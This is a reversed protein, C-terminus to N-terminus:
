RVVFRLPAVTAQAEPNYYDYVVSAPTQANIAYRPKFKFNFKTGGAQAWMYIVIRDPLIEYRSINWNAEIAKDLSERSVDAGPPTGIEALLMGYGRFGTREAAVTCTVDEMIASSAKDCKYDLKLSRSSNVDLNSAQADRWDIYHTAVVQSMLPMEGSATIEVKNAAAGLKDSLDITIPDIKDAPVSLNQIAEGNLSVRITQEEAPRQGALATLLADLVNITTQTSYWVGFRDKNKLLFLTGKTILEKRAINNEGKITTDRILLQLVLATTEIRGATGWGYFPTNTELRWYVSGSEDIAMKELQAAVAGATETDGADIAALGFLALAYPEDIEANRAKLYALAKNLAARDTDKSMALARAIYTTTLKTRKTDEATDYYYKKTWSGDPRQQRVLWETARKIVEDDVTIQSKADNLFRLAYATLSVDSTDKGGWYTFGGDAIQYGLLREYGARLYKKATQRLPSNGSIFKLIMLNPYTSSITQEGCGYPRKLLGGVSDSVHSILNPYIKLEAKQTRPMANEPFNVNLSATGASVTSVTRVVEDGNPRVTVPKEIADSDTQAIATVRQKGDKVPLIAKFGFITNASEGPGVDIKQKDPGLMSFWDAKAMSVSVPQRKETYNRVQTPLYIEDGETLFKPPDLDVFFPQFATIEKEAVGIKGKKTSAVTYMKWTTINDAMKFTMEAKGNKDTLLEPQWVLTEPFYQRLRPTSIQEKYPFAIRTETRGVSINVMTASTEIASDTGTVEVTASVGGANLVVKMEILNLSRVEVGTRVYSQFGPASIKVRYRGSPLNGILFNGADDTTTLFSVTEDNEYIATVTAAVIVAGMADTVSGDIAGRAGNFVVSNIEGKSSGDFGWLETVVSSFRALDFDDSERAPDAGKSRITFVRLKETVPKIVQKGNEYTTRDAYRSIDASTLYVPQRYGDRVLGLDLGSSSLLATFEAKDKPFPKKEANVERSLMENIQNESKYFYDTSVTWADFDDRNWQGREEIGNPGLSYIRIVYNRGSVEFVIKYQRGWRDRLSSLDIGYKSVATNLTWLDRIFEGTNTQYAKVAKEINEGIPRFYEFSVTAVAFDDDTGFVKDPGATRLGDIALTKDTTFTPRYNQGWPDKLGDFDIGYQQLCVKLSELDFPITHNKEFQAKLATEVPRMQLPFFDRYISQANEDNGGDHYVRPYYYNGALMVEAALEMEDSIPKSLDLNNLDNLSLTGFSKGYGLLDRFIGFYNDYGEDARARQEVASDFVAIGLASEAVRGSGDLVSFRVKVDDNPRYSPSSFKANLKLNQQDPFIIGRSARMRGDWGTDQDTYGAITLEGKFEPRFPISVDVKGNKLKGIRTDIITWDKVVDVYVFGTQQTSLINVDVMEGPKYISRSTSLQLTDNESDLSYNEEFTGQRGKKDRAGIKLELDHKDDYGPPITLEFKGAGLSNTKVRELTKGSNIIDVDCVAPTGDAYFTSVYAILPLKPNQYNHRVLYIHIPEKTLRIELRKQETRNTSLDTYYAAFRLDTFRKWQSERLESNERTLDFRAVYRGAADTEGELQAKEEVDYKQTRYNWRRENEQVIRVRGKNVPKGFLYDANVTIEAHDDTPLYYAKDAKATVSFNPLDYRSVKFTLQDARLQEDAEVIVRYNGLKANEPIQWTISAIGFDSTKVTQRFLVTDDEDKISFELDSGAVVFNNVDFYIGRASFSQGPQYLPKDANLIITGHMGDSDLDEDIKRLVGGKNGSVKLNQDDALRINAPVKFELEEVGDSNTKGSATLKLEDDDEDTVLGLQLEGTIVVNRISRKTLPHLARVRVRYIEGPVIMETAAVRMEFDDKMLESLSIIGSGGAVHYHLRYWAVDASNTKLLDGIPMSIKYAQKGRTLRLMPEAAACIGGRTDLLELRVSVDKTAGPNSIVISAVATKENFEIRSESEVVTQGLAGAVACVLGMVFLTFVRLRM